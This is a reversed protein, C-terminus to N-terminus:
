PTADKIDFYYSTTAAEFDARTLPQTTSQWKNTPTLIRNAVKIPMAFTSEDTRWRYQVNGPVIKLELVPIAAYGTTESFLAPDDIMILSTTPNAGHAALFAAVTRDLDASRNLDTLDRRALSVGSTIYLLIAMAALINATSPTGAANYICIAILVAALPLIGTLSKIASFGGIAPLVLGYM